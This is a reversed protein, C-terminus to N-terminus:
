KRIKYARIVTHEFTNGKSDSGKVRLSAFGGADGNRVLATRGNVAVKSWTRGDDFSVEVALKRVKGDPGGQQQQVDLPVRLLRNAPASGAADLEPAFRVVTVPVPKFVTGPVTDSRFTWTGAVKTSFESVGPLRVAETDVKFEAPGPPVTFLGNSAYATEGVKTGDRYLTTRASATDSDGLNGDHDGWLPVGFGIQDGMRAAYPFDAAPMTPGFVPKGFRQRYERGPRYSRDPSQLLAEPRDQANFQLLVWTWTPGKATVYDIADGAAGVETLLTGSSGGGVIRPLAGYRYTKGDPLPEVRSDVRALEGKAPARVFGTPVKGHEGWALRYNVPTTGVPAGRAHAHVMTNVEERSPVPGLQAISVKDGFGGFFVTGVAFRRDGYTRSVVVDGILDEAAPDPYTIRIPKALRADADVTTPGAVKLLPQPLLAGTVRDEAFVDHYAFYDGKPLREKAVGASGAPFVVTDNDLGIILSGGYAPPQGAGDTYKITVDYSEVERSISVPTRLAGSAVVAGAYVGDLTGVKTDGTVTVKATGGAPVTVKDPAVTLLGAPAPKGDPGRVDLTLDLTVPTAGANRYTLEKGVPVDDDHPWQQQGLGVSVPDTTVTTTIAKALDIRGAGQDLVTLDPNNKASAVLAAKLQAGTWDPHQQALVAAAGAVHPAAMSTGSLAVHTADVPNGITGKAAKAAAIDVGPATVDPKIGGDGARPGRSSFPAIRDDREVAGVSLAADATSPSGVTGPRGSNGASIVFLTGKEASLRNVAEELPDVGPRDGGGLSLNVVDAGQDAAWQMGDLIWSEACGGQVCVKGDLIQADPAVGRYKAHKSAITAAVHTGHGDNDTADPDESFNREAVEQGALDPHAGDVGGDLVAVKVGKGTYGAGWAAPAGIQATSRDLNTRRLGDLWVKRVNPDAVLSRFATGAESKPARAAVAGVTPLERTVQVGEARSGGGIVILPVHDRRADDYGSEALGTVDFLRLDLKGDALPGLADRPIVHVHGDRQFTHFVVEDRGPGRTVSGLRDGDLLVRDGTILTVTARAGTITTHHDPAEPAATAAGTGSAIMGIAM